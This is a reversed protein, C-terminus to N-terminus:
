QRRPDDAPNVYDIQWPGNTSIQVVTEGEARAHHVMGAPLAFFSGAGLAAPEGDAGMALHFTGSLVTLIEPGRHTHPPIRYGDPLRVRLVFLGEAAPNGYLAVAQAGPPLSPPGAGWQLQDAPIVRHHEHAPAQAAAATWAGCAMAVLLLGQKM